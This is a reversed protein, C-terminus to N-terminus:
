GRLDVRGLDLDVQPVPELLAPTNAALSPDDFESGQLGCRDVLLESHEPTDETDGYLLFKARGVWTGCHLERDGEFAQEPRV